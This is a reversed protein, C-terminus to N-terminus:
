IGELVAGRNGQYKYSNQSCIALSIEGSLTLLAAKRPKKATIKSACVVM